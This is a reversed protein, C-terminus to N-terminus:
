GCRTRTASRWKWRTWTAPVPRLPTPGSAPWISARRMAPASSSAAPQWVGEFNISCGAHPCVVQLATSKRARAVCFCRGSRRALSLPELRRHPRRDGLVKQPTGDTRCYTSRPWDCSSDARARRDCRISSRRSAPRSRRFSCDGRRRLTGRHAQGLFGRRNDDGCSAIVIQRLLLFQVHTTSNQM